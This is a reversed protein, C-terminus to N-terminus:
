LHAFASGLWRISGSLNDMRGRYSPWAELLIADPVAIKGIDHVVGARRLATIQDEPLRLNNEWLLRISRWANVIVM